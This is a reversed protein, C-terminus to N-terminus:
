NSTSALCRKPKNSQEDDCVVTESDSGHPKRALPKNSIGSPNIPGAVAEYREKTMILAKILSPIITPPLLIQALSQVRVTGTRAQEPDSTPKTPTLAFSLQFEHQAASVEAFNAYVSNCNSEVVVTVENIVPADSTSSLKANGRAM